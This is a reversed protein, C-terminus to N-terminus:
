RFVYSTGGLKVLPRDHGQTHCKRREVCRLLGIKIWPRARAEAFIRERMRASDNASPALPVVNLRLAFHQFKSINQNQQIKQFGGIWASIWFSVLIV